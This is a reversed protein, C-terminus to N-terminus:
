ANTYGDRELHTRLQRLARHLTAKVTGEAVGLVRATEATSLDALVRLAIVERQRRPLRWVALVLDGDMPHADPPAVRDPPSAQERRHRRWWSTAANLAVRVVWARPYEHGRVTDWRDYARLFAEQVADEAQHPNRTTVLVTRYVSDRNAVYFDAFELDVASARAGTLSEIVLGDMAKM